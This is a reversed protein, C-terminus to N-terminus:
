VRRAMKEVMVAVGGGILGGLVPMLLYIWLGDSIGAIVAPALARAPNMAAGDLPGALLTLLVVTAGVGLAARTGALGGHKSLSMAVFMLIATIVTEMAAALYVPDADAVMAPDAVPFPTGLAAVDGLIAYLLAVAMFAGIIQGAVAIMSPIIPEKGFAAFAISLAPNFHGRGTEGLTLIAVGYALGFVLSVGIHGIVGGSLADIMIAGCGAFTIILVGLAEGFLLKSYETM